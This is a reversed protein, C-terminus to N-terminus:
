KEERLRKNTEKLEAKDINKLGHIKILERLEEKSKIKSVKVKNKKPMIVEM